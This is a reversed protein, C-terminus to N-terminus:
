NPITSAPVVAVEVDAPSSPLPTGEHMLEDAIGTNNEWIAAGELTRKGAAVGCHLIM